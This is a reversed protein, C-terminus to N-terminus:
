AKEVRMLMGDITKVVVKDGENLEVASETEASWIEGQLTVKGTNGAWEMVIAHEDVLGSIGNVAKRRLDGIILRGIILAVLLITGLITVVFVHSVAVGMADETDFMMRIGFFISIFGSLFLLGFSTIFMELILLVVGLLIFAFAIMNLPIFNSGIVFLIIAVAGIGAFIFTGPVKFELAFMIFAIFFLAALINPDSLVSMFKETFTKEFPVINVSDVNFYSALASQLTEGDKLVKDVVNLEVAENATLSRSQTVMEEAVTINRGRKEAISKVFAVTDNLVKDGMEGEIDSGTSAVPHAAGINTSDAMIAYNASITIFMGASAARAGSDGVYVVVPIKSNLILGVIDRTSDLLGGPTDLKIVVALDGRKTADTIAREIINKTTGSIVGDVNVVSVNNNMNTYNDTANDQAIAINTTFIIVAIVYLLHKITKM